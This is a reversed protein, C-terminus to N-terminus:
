KSAKRGPKATSRRRGVFPAWRTGMTSGPFPWRTQWKPRNLDAKHNAFQVLGGGRLFEALVPPISPRTRLRCTERVLDGLTYSQYPAALPESHLFINLTVPDASFGDLASLEALLELAAWRRSKPAHALVREVREEESEEKPPEPIPQIEPAEEVSSVEATAM